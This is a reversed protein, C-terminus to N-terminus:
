FIQSAGGLLAIMKLVDVKMREDRYFYYSHIFFLDLLIACQLFKSSISFGFSCLLGGLLFLFTILYILDEKHQNLNDMASNSGNQIFQITSDPIYISKLVKESYLDQKYNAISRQIYNQNRNSENLNILGLWIMYLGFIFKIISYIKM